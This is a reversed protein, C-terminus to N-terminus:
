MQRWSNLTQEDRLAGGGECTLNEGLPFADIDGLHLM